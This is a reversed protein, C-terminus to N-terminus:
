DDLDIDIDIGDTPEVKYTEESATWVMEETLEQEAAETYIKRQRQLEEIRLQVKSKQPSIVSKWENIFGDLIFALLVSNL